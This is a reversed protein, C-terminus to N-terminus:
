HDNLARGGCRNYGSRLRERLVSQSASARSTLTSGKTSLASSLGSLTKSSAMTERTRGLSDVAATQLAAESGHLQWERRLGAPEAIAPQEM